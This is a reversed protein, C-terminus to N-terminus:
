GREDINVNVFVTAPMATEARVAANYPGSVERIFGAVDPARNPAGPRAKPSANM